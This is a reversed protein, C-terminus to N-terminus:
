HETHISVLPRNMSLTQLIRVVWLPDAETCAPICGGLHPGSSGWPTPKSIGWPTPRSVGRPTPRSVGGPWVGRDRTPRSVGGLWVGSSGGPHPGPFRCSMSPYVCVGPSRCPMSPYWRCPMSRYWVGQHCVSVYLFMVKVFKTQPCCFHRQQSDQWAHVGYHVRAQKVLCHALYGTM